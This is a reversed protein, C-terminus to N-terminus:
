TQGPSEGASWVVVLRAAVARMERELLGIRQKRRELKM